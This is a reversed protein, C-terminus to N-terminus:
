PSCDLGGAADVVGELIWDNILGAENSKGNGEAKGCDDAGDMDDDSCWLYLTSEGLKSGAADFIEWIINNPL